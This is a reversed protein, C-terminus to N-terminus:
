PVIIMDGPRVTLVKGRGNVADNYNFAITTEGAAGKRMIRIDKKKAWETFGGSMALVQLISTEGTVPKAGPANVEGIVHVMMPVTEVVIVTVDLAPSKVYERLAETITTDLEMATKGAATVDGVLPLTIKGDPRIQLSQSLQEDKYVEIRLKDGNMLRYDSAVDAAKPKPEAATGSTGTAGATGSTQAAAATSLLLTLSISLLVSKTM